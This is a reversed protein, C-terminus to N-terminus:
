FSKTIERLLSTAYSGKPLSFELTVVDETVIWSIDGAPVRMPRREGEMRLGGSIDFSSLEVGAQELITRELERVGGEPRKMKCGFLPGTPSIEFLAARAEEALVDEILFCAGNIHKWALDGTMLTDIHTIRRAVVQDFLFSQVASLYLKKMRPHLVSFAKEYEGPRARLRELVDREGRCHRPFRQLAEDISGQQYAVIAASWGEDRVAHPEGILLDVCEHWNRRLMAAGILHSNGQAGYRQSGFYNPVGRKGLTDVISPITEAATTSVDRIVIRFRNGKLHGLKLKNAHRLASLVRVGDLELALAKEPAIKQISFTQRTVGVADKMGAYGVDRESVKLAAAIRHIAEFTTIGQKEITLYCHEGSGCPLYSAIEEVFFDEPLAKILGGIGPIDATLYPHPM